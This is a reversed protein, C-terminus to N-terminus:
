QLVVADTFAQGNSNTVRASYIGASLHAVNVDLTSTNTTQVFVRRGDAAFLEVQSIGGKASFWLMGSAPNPYMKIGGASFNKVSFPENDKIYLALLSDPGISGPGVINRIAFVLTKDGDGDTDDNINVKFPLVSNNKLVSITKTTFNYDKPDLASGGAVVVQFTYNEDLPAAAFDLRFSDALETITDKTKLFQIVPLTAAEFDTLARPMLYYGSTYPSSGDFQQGIGRVNFYGKPAPTGDINTEADIFISDVTGDTHKVGLYKFGNASLAATPWQTEDVLIVRNMKALNSEQAETMDNVVSATKLTRNSALKIVTDLFQFEGLGSFQKVTGQIIVSDGITPVYGFTNSPSFVTIGGTADIVTFQFGATRVNESYVVGRIRCKVNLSDNARAPLSQANINGIPYVPYDDNIIRILLTDDSLIRVNSLIGLGFMITETPEYSDDDTLPINVVITDATNKDISKIQSSPSFAFDQGQTATTGGTLLRLTFDGGADTKFPVEIRVNVSTQKEQVTIVKDVFRVQAPGDNDRIVITVTSDTVQGLGSIQRIVLNFTDNPDGNVDDIIKCPILISDPGTTKGISFVSDKGSFGLAFEGPIYSSDGRTKVMLKVMSATGVAKDMKIKVNVTGIDEKEVIKPTPVSIYAIDNDTITLTHAVEVGIKCNSPQDLRLVINEDGESSNDDIITIKTTDNVQGGPAFTITKPASLTYDTGGGTATGGVISLRVSQSADNSYKRVVYVEATGVSESTTSTRTWFEIEPQVLAADNEDFAIATTGGTPDVTNKSSPGWVGDGDTNSFIPFGIYPDLNEVKRVGNALNNPIIAGWNGAVTEVNNKYYAVASSGISMGDNEVMTLALPRGFGGVNDYLAVFSKAKALSHGWIGTGTTDSKNTAFQLMTISDNTFQKFTDNTSLGILTIVGYVHKGPNFRANTTVIFGFWGEYEGAGDTYLTDHNAGTSFSPASTTKWVGSDMFIPNGAGPILTTSNFDTAAAGRTVYKYGKNPALGAIRARYVVPLRYSGGFSSGAYQPIRVANFNVFQGFSEFAALASLLLLLRKM